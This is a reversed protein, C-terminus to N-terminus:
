HPFFTATTHKQFAAKFWRAMQNPCDACSSFVCPFVRPLFFLFLPCVVRNREEEALTHASPISCLFMKARTRGASYLLHKWQIKKGWKRCKEGKKAHNYTESQGHLLQPMAPARCSRVRVEHLGPETRSSHLFGVLELCTSNPQQHFFTKLETSSLGSSGQGM